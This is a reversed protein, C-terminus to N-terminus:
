NKRMKRESGFLGDTFVGAARKSGLLLDINGDRLKLEM